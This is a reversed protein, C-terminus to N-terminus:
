SEPSIMCMDNELLYDQSQSVLSAQMVRFMTGLPSKLRQASPFTFLAGGGGGDGGCGCEWLGQESLRLGSACSM